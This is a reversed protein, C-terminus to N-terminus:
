GRLGKQGAEGDLVDQVGKACRLVLGRAAGSAEVSEGSSAPAVAEILVVRAGVVFGAAAGPPSRSLSVVKVASRM